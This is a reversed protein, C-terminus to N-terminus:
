RGTGDRCKRLRDLLVRMKEPRLRISTEAGVTRVLIREAPRLLDDVAQDTTFSVASGRGVGDIAVSGSHDTLWVDGVKVAVPTTWGDPFQWRSDIAIVLTRGPDAWEFTVSADGDYLLLSCSVDAQDRHEMVKGGPTDWWVTDKVPTVLLSSALVISM